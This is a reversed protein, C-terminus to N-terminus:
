SQRPKVANSNPSIISVGVIFGPTQLPVCEDRRQSAVYEQKAPAPLLDAFDM